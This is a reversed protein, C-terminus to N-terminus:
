LLVGNLGEGPLAISVVYASTKRKTILWAVTLLAMSNVITDSEGQPFEGKLVM